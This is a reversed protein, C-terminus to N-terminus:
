ARGAPTCGANRDPVHGPGNQSAQERGQRILGDLEEDGPRLPWTAPRRAPNQRAHQGPQQHPQEQQCEAPHASQEIFMSVLISRLSWGYSAFASNQLSQRLAKGRRLFQTGGQGSRHLCTSNHRRLRCPLCSPWRCGQMAATRCAAPKTVPRYWAPSHAARRGADPHCPAGTSATSSGRPRPFATQRRLRQGAGSCLQGSGGDAKARCATRQGHHLQRIGTQGRSQGGHRDARYRGDARVADAARSSREAASAAPTMRSPAIQTVAGSCGLATRLSSMTAAPLHLQSSTTGSGSSM